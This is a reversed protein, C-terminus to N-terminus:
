APQGDGSDGAEAAGRPVRPSPNSVRALYQTRPRTGLEHLEDYRLPSERLRSVASEPDAIDGFVIAQTPCAQQCATVIQDRELDRGEDRARIEERRIRQVCYTCKEMVGRGRVTVDPNLVLNEIPQPRETYDLWNFRRVKYPCNNSCFRTGICRNYIMENLGDASHVTAYTPCVYECPADECHQCLMPQRLHADPEDEPGTTYADIRIWDMLRGKRVDEPGVIAINNEARCAVVCASCGTCRSLDISMGWQHEDVPVDLPGYWTDQEGRQSGTLDPDALYEELTAHLVVPRDHMTRETQADPLEWSEIGSAEVTAPAIWPLASPRIRYADVGRATYRDVQDTGHGLTLTVAHDAHGSLPLAPAELTRGDVVIRVADGREVGLGSAMRPSMLAANAWSLKTIPDPLEQLWANGAFRGDHLCGDLRFRIEVDHDPASFGSLLGAVDLPPTRVAAFASDAVLGARLVEDWWLGWADDDSPAGELSGRWHARLADYVSPSPRRLLALLLGEPSTGDDDLPRILPQVPTLTGDYARADGWTEFLHLAPMTWAASAATANPRLGLYLSRAASELADRFPVDAPATRVPDGGVVILREVSGARISETLRELGGDIEAAREIAPEQLVVPGGFAGVIRNAEHALAHAAAPQADGVVVVGEGPGSLLDGAAAAVWARVREGDLREPVPPLGDVRGGLARVLEALVFIVDGSRVRLLHDALPSAGSPSPEALYLRNLREPATSVVSHRSAFDHAYRLAYPMSTIFDADLAVVTRALGFDYRSM